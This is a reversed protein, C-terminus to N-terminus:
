PQYIHLGEPHTLFITNIGVDTNTSWVYKQLDCPLEVSLGTGSVAPPWPYTLIPNCIYIPKYIKWAKLTNYIKNM